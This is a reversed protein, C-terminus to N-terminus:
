RCNSRACGLSGSSGAGSGCALFPEPPAPQGLFLYALLHIPDSIDLRGDADADYIEECRFVSGQGVFLYRACAAADSVNIRGDGNVDGRRFPVRKEGFVLGDTIREPRLTRGDVTLGVKTPPSNPPNLSDSFELRTPLDPDLDAIVRYKAVVAPFDEGVPLVKGPPPVSSFVAAAIFGPVPEGEAPMPNQAPFYLDPGMIDRMEPAFDAELWELRAPDHRVGLAWGQVKASVVDFVVRAAIEDGKRATRQSLRDERRGFRLRLSDPACRDPPACLAREEVPDGAWIEGDTIREPRRTRGDITFNTRVPPSNPPMLDDAIELQAPENRDLEAIARYRAKALPLDDGVPLIFPPLCQAILAASVFGPAPDGGAKSTIVMLCIGFGPIEPVVHTAELLELKTPDHRIGFSWGQFKASKVDFVVFATIEDGKRALIQSTKERPDGFRLHISDPACLSPPRCFIRAAALALKPFILFLIALHSATRVM